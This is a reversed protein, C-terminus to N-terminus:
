NSIYIIKLWTKSAGADQVKAGVVFFWIVVEVLMCPLICAAPTGPSTKTRWEIIPFCCSIIFAILATKSYGKITYDSTLETCTLILAITNLGTVIRYQKILM